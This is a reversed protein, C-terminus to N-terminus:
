VWMHRKTIIESFPGSVGKTEINKLRKLAKSSLILAIVAIFGVAYIIIDDQM